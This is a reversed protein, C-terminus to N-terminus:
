RLGAIAQFSRNMVTVLLFIVAASISDIQFARNIEAQYHAPQISTVLRSCCSRPTPEITALASVSM